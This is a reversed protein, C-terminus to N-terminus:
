TRPRPTGATCTRPPSTTTVTRRSCPTARAGPEISLSDTPAIPAVYSNSRGSQNSFVLYDSGDDDTVRDPRRHGSLARRPDPDAPQRLHFRRHPLREGPLSPTTPRSTPTSRRRPRPSSSTSTPTRTTCGGLRGIWSTDALTTMRSFADGVVDKSAPDALPTARTAVQNRFTWNVLDKSSYVDISSFTCTKYIKTPAAAYAAAEQYQVGYWYYTSGFRFVGGGQSAILNGSTDKWFSDNHIIPVKSARDAAATAAAQTSGILTGVVIAAVLARRVLKPVIHM